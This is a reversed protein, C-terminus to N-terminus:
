SSVFLITERVASLHQEFTQAAIQAAAEGLMDHGDFVCWAHM